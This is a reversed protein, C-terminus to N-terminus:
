QASCSIEYFVKGAKGASKGGSVSIKRMSKKAKLVEVRPTGM